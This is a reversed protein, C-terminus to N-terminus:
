SNHISYCSGLLFVCVINLCIYQNINVKKIHFIKPLLLVPKRNLLTMNINISVKDQKGKCSTQNVMERFVINLELLYRM